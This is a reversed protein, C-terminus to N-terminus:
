PKAKKNIVRDILNKDGPKYCYRDLTTSAKAHRAHSSVELISADGGENELRTLSSDRLGHLTIHKVGAIIIHEDMIRRATSRSTPNGDFFIFSDENTVHSAQYLSVLATTNKESITVAKKSAKTKPPIFESQQNLQGYVMITHTDSAFANWKIALMEGIRFSGDYLVEFFLKWKDNEEFTGIFTEWEPVNWCNIPKEPDTNAIRKAIRLCMHEIKDSLWDNEDAFQVISRFVMFTRNVFDCSYHNETKADIIVNRFNYVSNENVANTIEIFLNFNTAIYNKIILQHNEFTGKSRTTKIEDLYRQIVQNLTIGSIHYNSKLEYRKKNIEQEQIAEVYKKGREFTWEKSNKIKYKKRKGNTDIDWFEIYYTKNKKDTTISM